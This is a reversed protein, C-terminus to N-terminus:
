RQSPHKKLQSQISSHLALRKCTPLSAKSLPMRIGSAIAGASIRVRERAEAEGQKCTLLPCDSVTITTLFSHLTMYVALPTPPPALLFMKHNRLPGVPPPRPLSTFQLILFIKKQNLCYDVPDKAKIESTHRKQTQKISKCPSSFFLYQLLTNRPNWLAWSFSNYIRRQTVSLGIM